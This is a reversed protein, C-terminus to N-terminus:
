PPPGVQQWVRTFALVTKGNYEGGDQLPAFPTVYGDVKVCKFKRGITPPAIEVVVPITGDMPKLIVGRAQPITELSFRRCCGEMIAAVTTSSGDCRGSETIVFSDHAGRSMQYNSEIV